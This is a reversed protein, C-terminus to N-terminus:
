RLIMAQSDANNSDQSSNYSGGEGASAVGPSSPALSVQSGMSLNWYGPPSSPLKTRARHRSHERCMNFGAIDTNAFFAKCQACDHGPLEKREAGLVKEMYKYQKKKKNAEQNNKKSKKSKKHKKHKKM